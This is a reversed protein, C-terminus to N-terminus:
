YISAQYLKEALSTSSVKRISLAAINLRFTNQGWFNRLAVSRIARSVSLLSMDTRSVKKLFEGHKSIQYCRNYIEEMTRNRGRADIPLDYVLVLNFIQYLIDFPLNELM